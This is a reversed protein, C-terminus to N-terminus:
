CMHTTTAPRCVTPRHVPWSCDDCAKHMCQLPDEPRGATCTVRVGVTFDLGSFSYRNACTHRSLSARCHMDGWGLGWVRFGLGKFPYGRSRASHMRIHGHPPTSGDAELCYSM